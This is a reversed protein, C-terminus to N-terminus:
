SQNHRCMLLTLMPWCPDVQLQNIKNYSAAGWQQRRRARLATFIWVVDSCQVLGVLGWFNCSNSLCRPSRPFNRALSIVVGAPFVFFFCWGVSGEWCRFHRDRWSFSKRLGETKEQKEELFIIFIIDSPHGLFWLIWWSGKWCEEPEQPSDPKWQTDKTKAAIRGWCQLWTTTNHTTVM